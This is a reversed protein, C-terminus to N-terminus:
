EILEGEELFTDFELTITALTEEPCIEINPAEIFGIPPEVGECRQQWLDVPNGSWTNDTGSLTATAGDLLIAPGESDLFRNGTLTLRTPDPADFAFLANGHLLLDPRMEQGAGGFLTNGDLLYDGPGSIWV